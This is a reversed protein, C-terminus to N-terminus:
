TEKNNSEEEEEESSEKVQHDSVYNQDIEKTSRRARRKRPEKSTVQRPKLDIEETLKSKEVEIITKEVPVEKTESQGASQENKTSSEKEEM